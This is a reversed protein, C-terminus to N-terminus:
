RAGDTQQPEPPDLMERRVRSCVYPSISGDLETMMGGRVWAEIVARITQDDPIKM